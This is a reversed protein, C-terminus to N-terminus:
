KVCFVQSLVYRRLFESAMNIVHYLIFDHGSVSNEIFYSRSFYSTIDTGKLRGLLNDDRIFNKGIKQDDHSIFVKTKILMYVVKNFFFKKLFRM